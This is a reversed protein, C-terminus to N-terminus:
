CSLIDIGPKKGRRLDDGLRAVQQSGINQLNEHYLLKM